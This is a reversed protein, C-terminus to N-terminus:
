GGGGGESELYSYIKKGFGKSYHLLYEDLKKRDLSDMLTDLADNRIGHGYYVLDIFTKENDSVPLWMDYHRIFDFGFFLGPRVNKVLYNANGLTRPGERVENATMVIPNTEQTWLNRYSLADELGYYFPRFAFGVVALDDHFTYTGTTIRRIEKTKMLHNILAKLYRQSIGSNSLLVRTDTLTFVPYDYNDFSERIKNIYKTM